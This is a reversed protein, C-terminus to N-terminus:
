LGIIGSASVTANATPLQNVTSTTVPRVVATTMPKTIIVDLSVYHSM